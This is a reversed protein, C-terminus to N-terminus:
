VPFSNAAGKRIWGLYLERVLYVRCSTWVSLHTCQQWLTVLSSQWVCHGQLMVQTTTRQLDCGDGCTWDERAAQALYLVKAAVSLGNAITTSLHDVGENGRASVHLLITAAGFGCSRSTYVSWPATPHKETLTTSPRESCVGGGHDISFVCTRLPASSNMDTAYVLLTAAHKRVVLSLLSLSWDWCLGRGRKHNLMFRLRNLALMRVIHDGKPM